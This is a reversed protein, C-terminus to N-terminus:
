ELGAIERLTGIQELLDAAGAHNRDSKLVENCCRVADASKGLGFFAQGRLYLAEIRSRKELDDDFLLMAPLSTAFYEIKPVQRELQEAYDLISRFLAAAEDKRGLCRCALATWFTMESIARVSMACFDGRQRTARTWCEEAQERDGQRAHGAGLWFWVDSQNALLHRAEGLSPPPKLIAAFSQCASAADGEALARQGILLHARTFQALVLGEGGEWPQFKRSLLLELAHAPQRTQNLLTALEVTLDDRQEFLNPSRELEALRIQPPEGMRKSLQDREYLVRADDPDAAFARDFADRARAPDGSGNFYAIGLNRWATPFQPDREVSQEWAVIAEQHRRRDYLFNGLYYPARADDPNAAIAKELLVLEELRSPFCYDPPAQAAQRCAEAGAPADRMQRCFDAIAYLIIPASGDRASSDASRLLAAAEAFFGARALDFALDLFQQHNAPLKRCSLFRAWVDLPDRTLTDRLITDADSDCGLKRLIMAHLNRANLNEPNAALSRQIHDLALDWASRRADIEALALYSPACWAANWAAKAFADCAGQDNGLFRLALGLNYYPEGDRPNLNRQTLRAIAAQFHKEAEAFEGRHLRWLGLANNSRADGVDRRLAEQWYAEPHRTAHRYQELHLGTLYLEDSSAIEEPLPPETAVQPANALNPRPPDYRLIELGNAEIRISHQAAQAADGLEIDARFPQAVSLDTVWERLVAGDPGDRRLTIRAGPIAHTVCVGLLMRGASAGLNLAAHLNAAQAPGIERIPYWYQSFIRTEWPALFSFDPQNDTFVGAMLEIYPGDSDTLCRDWAYGFDHNGWTWQKKGPAIRHDAVHVIGARAAHDYGGFFDQETGLIMYSTPVPINSYWSLDNAAYSGDPVFQSPMEDAPVGSRAREPYDVGYYPRDSLPFSTLARRAHDAVFRVDPPFFSQYKEHVKVAVNAWWLFTEVFPTRNYLRVKLEVYARGPHLCVGHMGKMRTMPDHDSSWITVSGDSGREIETEVPMFTAPRHHQPWNFEVGGSIWPGALGVLAPKIVNQRYFFDYGNIKDLGLHIRGGIQPLIMLRLFENELHVAQWARDVPETAIRDIFPLPYVRGSSGQYVRKELFMPNRDPAAPLYSPMTVPQQWAKVSGSESAPADPLVFQELSRNKEALPM